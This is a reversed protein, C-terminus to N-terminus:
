LGNERRWKRKAAKALGKANAMQADEVLMRRALQMEPLFFKWGKIMAGGTGVAWDLDVNRNYVAQNIVSVHTQIIEDANEIKDARLMKDIQHISKGNLQRGIRELTIHMGTKPSCSMTEILEGDEFFVLQSTGLGGDVLVGNGSWLFDNEARDNGFEDYVLDYFTGLPEWTVGASKCYFRPGIKRDGITLKIQEGQIGELLKRMSQEQAEYYEVPLGTAAAFDVVKTEGVALAMMTLLRIKFFPDEAKNDLMSHYQYTSQNVALDGYFFHQGEYEVRIHDPQYAPLKKPEGLVAPCAFGVGKINAWVKDYGFGPNLGFFEM